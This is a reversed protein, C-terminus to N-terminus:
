CTDDILHKDFGKEILVEYAKEVNSPIQQDIQFGKQPYVKIRQLDGVMLNVIYEASSRETEIYERMPVDIASMIINPTDASPWQRMFTAYVRRLMYPKSVIIINRPVINREELLNYSFRINEGTNTAKPEIIIANDPVGLLRAESAFWEAEPESLFDKTGVGSNGSFLISPALGKNWLSAAHRASRIDHNGLGLILDAVEVPQEIRMYDWIVQAYELVDESM